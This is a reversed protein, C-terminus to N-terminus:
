GILTITVPRLAAVTAVDAEASPVAVTVEDETFDLVVVAAVARTTTGSVPEVVWLDVLDGVALLPVQTLVAVTLAVSGDPVGSSAASTVRQELLVEGPFLAVKAVGSAPTETVAGDPVMAVPLQRASTLGAIPEGRAVQEDVVVVTTTAGWGSRETEVARLRAGFSLSAGVALVVAAAAWVVRQRLLKRLLSPAWSARLLRAPVSSPRIVRVRM